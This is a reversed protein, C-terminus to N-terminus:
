FLIHLTDLKQGYRLSQHLFIRANMELHGIKCIVETAWPRNKFIYKVLGGGFM